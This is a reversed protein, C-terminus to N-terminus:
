QESISMKGTQDQIYSCDPCEIYNKSFLGSKLDKIQYTFECGCKNCTTKFKNGHKIIKIM